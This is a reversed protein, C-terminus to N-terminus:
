GDAILARYAGDRAMLAEHTGREVVKGQDLVVIEDADRITSLRHAVIVCTMGRRRIARDIEHETAPDLASTAEDLILIAPDAALARAIELRQAQGGSLNTGGESLEADLGGPRAAVTTLVAADRLAAVIDAEPLTDDWAGVAERVTGSFLHVEQSVVAVSRALVGRDITEIPRGDYLISGSWPRYLGTMLRAITSKGSGSAGVLAVRAGAPVSLEFGEVLPPELPSYGFTVGSLEVKGVLRPAADPRPAVAFSPDRPHRMVDDARDLDAGLVQVTGAVAVLQNIPQVLGAVLVQFAVLTGITMQDTMVRYGGVGLIAATTLGMLLPPVANALVEYTGIRRQNNLHRAQFGAWRAFYDDDAGTAKLTEIAQIGSISASQFQGFEQQVRQAADVRARSLARFVAVNLLSLTIAIAALVPDFLVMVAGYFVVRLMAVVSDGLPGALTAAIRDNADIRNAIDGPYRQLFFGVPLHLLHWVFRASGSLSLKTRIRLLLSQNLFTLGAMVLATAGMVLLLPMLWAEREGILVNDIFIKSFGPVLLGPVVLSIGMLVALTMGGRVPATRAALRALRSRPRRERRFDPGPAFALLVGTFAEDFEERSVRRPGTAPDNLFVFRGRVGEVVVFHNFNWFAVYPVPESLAAALNARRGKAELGYTRAARVMNRANSGDRSVGCAERLAELPPWKGYHALVIGLAAAGCEVAEMQLVTPTRVRRRGPGTRRARRLLPIPFPAM